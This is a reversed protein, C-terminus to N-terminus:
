HSLSVDMPQRKRAGLLSCPGCGLCTGQSPISSCVKPKAPWHKIWLALGALALVKRILYYSGGFPLLVTEM